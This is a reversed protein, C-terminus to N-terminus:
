KRASKLCEKLRANFEATSNKLSHLFENDNLSGLVAVMEEESGYTMKRFPDDYDKQRSYISAKYMGKSFATVDCIIDDFIERTFESIKRSYLKELIFISYRAKYEGYHSQCRDYFKHAEDWSNIKKSKVLNAFEDLMKSPLIQGGANTWKTYLKISLIKEIAASDLSEIKKLDCFEM